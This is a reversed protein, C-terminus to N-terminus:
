LGGNTTKDAAPGLSGTQGAPEALVVVTGASRDHLAMRLPRNFLPSLCDIFQFVFGILCTWLLVPLGLATWRRFARWYGLRHMGELPVVRIGMIRKGLTQGSNGTTPVEYAIWTAMILITIVWLLQSGRSSMTPGSSITGTQSAHWAAKWYPATEKVWQYVLYSTLIVNLVLVAAIDILRALLRMGLPALALGHPRPEPALVYPVPYPRGVPWNPPYMGPPPVPRPQYASADPTVITPQGYGAAPPYNGPVPYSGPPPYAGPPYAGPPYAGPPPLQGPQLAEPQLAEPMLISPPPTDIAVSVPTVIPGAPPTADIPLSDGVWGEGDWYRQTTPEAPDRYWGPPNESM